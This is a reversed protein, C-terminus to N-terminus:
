MINFVEAPLSLIRALIIVQGAGRGSGPEPGCASALRYRLSRRSWM